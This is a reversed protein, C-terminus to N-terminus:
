RSGRSTARRLARDPDAPPGPLAPRARRHRQSLPQIPHPAPPPLVQTMTPSLAPMQLISHPPYNASPPAAAPPASSAPAAPAAAPAAPAADAPVAYNAFASVLAKDEVLVLVTKGVRVEQAGEPVLIAAVYGEEQAEWGITAKDSEIDCILDGPSLKDGVKVKYTTINGQTMTPSLAPM